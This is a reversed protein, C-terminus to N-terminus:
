IENTKGNARGKGKHNRNDGLELPSQTLKETCITKRKRIHHARRKFQDM